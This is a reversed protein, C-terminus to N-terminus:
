LDMQHRSIRYLFPVLQHRESDDLLSDVPDEKNGLRPTGHVVALIRAVERLFAIGADIGPRIDEVSATRRVGRFPRPRVLLREVLRRRWIAVEPPFARPPHCFDGRERPDLPWGTLDVPAPLEPGPSQTPM